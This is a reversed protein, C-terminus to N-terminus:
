SRSMSEIQKKIEKEIKGEFMRWLLPLQADLVYETDTIALSGTVAKKQIEVAFNLTTGQWEEKNIKAQQMIMGRNQNLMSKVRGQAKSASTNHPVAIHM